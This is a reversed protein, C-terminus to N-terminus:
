HSLARTRIRPAHPRPPEPNLANPPSYKLATTQTPTPNRHKHHPPLSHPPHPRFHSPNRQLSPQPPGPLTKSDTWIAIPFPILTRPNCRAQFPRIHGPITLQPKCDSPSPYYPPMNSAIVWCSQVATGKRSASTPSVAPWPM